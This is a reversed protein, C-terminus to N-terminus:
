ISISASLNCMTLLTVAFKSATHKLGIVDKIMAKECKM